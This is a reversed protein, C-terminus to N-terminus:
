ANRAHNHKNHDHRQISLSIPILTTSTNKNILMCLNIYTNNYSNRVSENYNSVYSYVCVSKKRSFM